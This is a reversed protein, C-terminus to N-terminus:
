VPGERNAMIGFADVVFHFGVARGDTAKHAAQVEEMAEEWVDNVEAANSIGRVTYRKPPDSRRSVTATM